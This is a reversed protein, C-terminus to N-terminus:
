LLRCVVSADHASRNQVGVFTRSKREEKTATNIIDLFCNQSKKLISMRLQQQNELYFWIDGPVGTDKKRVGFSM